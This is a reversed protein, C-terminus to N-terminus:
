RSYMAPVSRNKGRNDTALLTRISYICLGFLVLSAAPATSTWFYLMFPDAPSWSGGRQNYYRTLLAVPLPNLMAGCLLTAVVMFWRRMRIAGCLLMAVGPYQMVQYHTWALPTAALTLATFGAMALPLDDSELRGGLVVAFVAMGILFTAGSAAVALVRNRTPLHLRPLDWGNEWSDPINKGAKAPDLIRLVTAPVSWVLMAPTGTTFSASQPKIPGPFRAIVATWPVVILLVSSIAAAALARWQRAMLLPAAVVAPFIKIAAGIGLSAGRLTGDLPASRTYALTLLLTLFCGVQGMFLTEFAATGFAWVFGIVCAALWDRGLARWLIWAATVLFGQSLIFWIFRATGLDLMGLPTLLFAFFPPYLYGTTNFPSHGHLIDQSAEHYM